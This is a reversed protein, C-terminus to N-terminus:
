LPLPRPHPSPILLLLLFPALLVLLPTRAPGFLHETFPTVVARHEPETIKRAARIGAWIRTIIVDLEVQAHRASTGKALRGLVVTWGMGRNAVATPEGPVISM